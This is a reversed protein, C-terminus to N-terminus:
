DMSIWSIIGDQRRPVAPGSGACCSRPEAGRRWPTRRLSPRTSPSWTRFAESELGHHFSRKQIFWNFWVFHWVSKQQTLSRSQLCITKICHRDGLLSIWWCIELASKDGVGILQSRIPPLPPAVLSMKALDGLPIPLSFLSFAAWLVSNDDDIILNNMPPFTAIM